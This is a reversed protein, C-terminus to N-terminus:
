AVVGARRLGALARADVGVGALIANTNLGLEPAPSRIAGPTGSLRAVVTHMPLQGMEEDPLVVVSEREIMYPENALDAWDCVPGVTVAPADFLALNEARTRQRMFDAIIPDLVDNNRIRDANTRFRPDDILDQRGIVRFLREAMSQM